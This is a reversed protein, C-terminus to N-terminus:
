YKYLTNSKILYIKKYKYLNIQRKTFLLLEYVVDVLNALFIRKYFYINQIIYKGM